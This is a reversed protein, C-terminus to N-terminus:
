FFGQECSARKVTYYKGKLHHQISDSNLSVNLTEARGKILYPSTQVGAVGSFMVLSPTVNALCM